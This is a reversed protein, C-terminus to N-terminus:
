LVVFPCSLVQLPRQGCGFLCQCFSVETILCFVVHCYIKTFWFLFLLNGHRKFFYVGSLQEACDAAEVSQTEAPRNALQVRPASDGADEVVEVNEHLVELKEEFGDGVGDHEVRLAIALGLADLVDPPHPLRVLVRHRLRQQGRGGLSAGAGQEAQRRKLVAQGRREHAVLLRPKQLRPHKGAFAGVQVKVEVVGFVPQPVDAHLCPRREAHMDAEIPAAPKLVLEFLLAHLVRLRLVAEGPDLVDPLGLGKQVHLPPAVPLFQECPQEALVGRPQGGGKPHDPGFVVPARVLRLEGGVVHEPVLGHEVPDERHQDPVPHHGGVAGGDHAEEARLRAPFAASGERLIQVAVAASAMLPHADLVAGVPVAHLHVVLLPRDEAQLRGDVVGSAEVNEAMRLVIRGAGHGPLVHPLAHRVKVPPRFYAVTYVFPIGLMYGGRVGALTEAFQQVLRAALGTELPPVPFDDIDARETGSIREVPAKEFKQLFPVPVQVAERVAVEVHEQVVAPGRRVHGFFFAARRPRGTQDTKQPGVPEHLFDLVPVPIHDRFITM